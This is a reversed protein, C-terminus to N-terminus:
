ATPTYAKTRTMGEATLESGIDNNGNVEKYEGPKLLILPM